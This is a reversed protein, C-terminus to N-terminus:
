IIMNIVESDNREPFDKYRSIYEEHINLQVWLIQKKPIWTKNQM